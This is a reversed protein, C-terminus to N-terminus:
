HKNNKNLLCLAFECMTAILNFQSINVHTVSIQQIHLLSLMQRHGLDLLPKLQKLWLFREYQMRVNLLSRASCVLDLSPGKKKDTLLQFFVEFHRGARESM